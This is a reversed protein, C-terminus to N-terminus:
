HARRAFVAFSQRHRVNAAREGRLTRLPGLDPDASIIACGCDPGSRPEVTPVILIREM